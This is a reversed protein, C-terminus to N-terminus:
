RPWNFIGAQVSAIPALLITVMIMFIQTRIQDKHRRDDRHLSDLTAFALGTVQYDSGTKQIEGTTAFSDLLFQLYTENKLGDPHLIWRDTFLESMIQMPDIRVRGQERARNVIHELLSMRDLMNIRRLNYLRQRIWRYRAVCVAYFHRIGTIGLCCFRLAGTYRLENHGRFHRLSVESQWIHKAPVSVPLNFQRGDYARGKYHSQHREEITCYPKNSVSLFAWFCDNNKRKLFLDSRPRLIM